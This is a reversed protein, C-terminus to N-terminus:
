LGALRISIAAATSLRVAPGLLPRGDRAGRLRTLKRTALDSPSPPEANGGYPPIGAATGAAGRSSTGIGPPPALAGHQEQQQHTGGAPAAYRMQETRPTSGM